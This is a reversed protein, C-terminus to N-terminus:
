HQLLQKVFLIKFLSKIVLACKRKWVSLFGLTDQVLKIVSVIHVKLQIINSTAVDVLSCTFM